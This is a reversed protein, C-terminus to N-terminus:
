GSASMVTSDEIMWRSKGDVGIYKGYTYKEGVGDIRKELQRSGLGECGEFDVLMRSGCICGIVGGLTDPTRPLDPL